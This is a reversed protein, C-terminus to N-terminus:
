HIECIHQYCPFLSVRPNYALRQFPTQQLPHLSKLENGKCKVGEARGDELRDM